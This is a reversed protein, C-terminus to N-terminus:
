LIIIGEQQPLFTKSINHQLHCPINHPIHFPINHQLNSDKIKYCGGKVGKVTIIHLDM